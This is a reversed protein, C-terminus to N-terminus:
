TDRRGLIGLGPRRCNSVHILLEERANPCQGKECTIVQAAQRGRADRVSEPLFEAWGQDGPVGGMGWAKLWLFFGSFYKSLISGWPNDGYRDRQNLSM